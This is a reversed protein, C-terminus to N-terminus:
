VRQVIQALLNTLIYHVHYFTHTSIHFIKWIFISLLFHIPLFTYYQKPSLQCPLSFPYSHPINNLHYSVFSFSTSSFFWHLFEMFKRESCQIQYTVCLLDSILKRSIIDSNLWLYTLIVSSLLSKVWYPREKSVNSACGKVIIGREVEMKDKVTM